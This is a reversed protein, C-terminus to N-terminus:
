EFMVATKAGLILNNDIDDGMEAGAYVSLQWRPAPRYVLGGLAWTRDTGESVTSSEYRVEGLLSFEPLYLNPRDGALKKSYVFNYLVAGGIQFSNDTESRAVFAGDAVFDWHDAVTTGLAIGFRATTEGAGLGEDEDGTPLLVRAYPMVYPYGLAGRWGVLDVGLGIDGLGYSVSDLMESRAAPVTLNLSFDRTVGFRAYPILAGLNDDSHFSTPDTIEQYVLELGVEWGQAAPVRGERNLLTRIPEAGAGGAVLVAAVWLWGCKKM